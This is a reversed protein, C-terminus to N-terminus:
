SYHVTWYSYFASSLPRRASQGLLFLDLLEHCPEEDEGNIDSVIDRSYLPLSELRRRLTVFEPYHEGALEAFVLSPAPANAM